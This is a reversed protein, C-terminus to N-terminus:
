LVSTIHVRSLWSFLSLKEHVLDLNLCSISYKSAIPRMCNSVKQMFINRPGKRGREEDKQVDVGGGFASYWIAQSPANKLLVLIDAVSHQSWAVSLLGLYVTICCEVLILSLPTPDKGDDSTLTNPWKAVGPWKAPKSNPTDFSQMLELAGYTSSSDTRKRGQLPSGAIGGDGGGVTSPGKRGVKPTTSLQDLETLTQSMGTVDTLDIVSMPSLCVTLCHSIACCLEFVKDFHSLPRTAIPPQMHSSLTELISSTMLRLHLGLNTLHRAPLSCSTLIPLQAPDVACTPIDTAGVVDYDRTAQALGTGWPLLTNVLHMLELKVTLLTPTTAAHLASYNMLTTLLDYGAPASDKPSEERDEETIEFGCIEKVINTENRLWDVLLGQLSLVTKEFANERYHATLSHDDTRRTLPLLPLSARGKKNWLYDCCTSIYITNLEETLISLCANYEIQEALSLIFVGQTSLLHPESPKAEHAKEEEEEEQNSPYSLILPKGWDIEESDQKDLAPLSVQSSVPKSWDFGNDTDEAETTLQSAVPQGWDFDDEIDTQRQSSVPQSWDFDEEEKEEVEPLANMASEGGYSFEKLTGSQIMRTITNVSPRRVLRGAVAPPATDAETGPLSDHSCIDEGLSCSKPLRALVDLALLPCGHVLHHYASSFLLTREGPTLPEDGVGSIPHGYPKPSKSPRTQSQVFSQAARSSYDRRLLLPRSRLFFYFNFIAPDVDEVLDEVKCRRKGGEESVLSPAVLLTELAGSYDKLLWYAISRLFPDTSTEAPRQAGGEGVRIGLITEKLLREYIPGGDGEFLRTIVFALQLDGLRSICVEVADWLKDALLFFAAAHEFRQKSLLAFANKLAAKRWREETFDNSFFSMM